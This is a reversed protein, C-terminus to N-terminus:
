ILRLASEAAPPVVEVDRRAVYRKDVLALNRPGSTAWVVIPEVM